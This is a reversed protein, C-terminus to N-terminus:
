TTSTTLNVVVSSAALSATSSTLPHNVVGAAALSLEQWFAFVFKVFKYLRGLVLDGGRWGCVLVCSCRSTVLCFITFASVELGCSYRGKKIQKVFKNFRECVM